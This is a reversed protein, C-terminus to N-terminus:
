NAQPQYLFMPKGAFDRDPHMHSCGGLMGMAQDDGQCALLLILCYTDVRTRPPAIDSPLICQSPGNASLFGRM